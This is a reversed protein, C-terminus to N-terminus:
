DDRVKSMRCEEGERERGNWILELREMQYKRLSFYPIFPEVKKIMLHGGKNRGEQKVRKEVERGRKRELYKWKTAYLVRGV